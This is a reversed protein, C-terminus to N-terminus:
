ECGELAVLEQSHALYLEYSEETYSTITITNCEVDNLQVCPTLCVIMCMYGYKKLL